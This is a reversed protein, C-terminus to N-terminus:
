CSQVQSDKQTSQLKGRSDAMLDNAPSIGLIFARILRQSRHGLSRPETTPKAM